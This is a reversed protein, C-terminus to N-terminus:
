PTRSVMLELKQRGWRAAVVVVPVAAAAGAGGSPLFPGTSKRPCMCPYPLLIWDGEAELWLLRLAARRGTSM